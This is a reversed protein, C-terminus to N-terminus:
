GAVKGQERTIRKGDERILWRVYASRTMGGRYSRQRDVSEVDTRTVRATM